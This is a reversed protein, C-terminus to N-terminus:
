LRVAAGGGPATADVTLAPGKSRRGSRWPGVPWSLLDDAGPPRLTLPSCRSGDYSTVSKCGLLTNVGQPPRGHAWCHGSYQIAMWPCDCDVGMFQYLRAMRGAPRWNETQGLKILPLVTEASFVVANFCPYNVPCSSATPPKTHSKTATSSLSATPLKSATMASHGPRGLLLFIGSVWLGVIVWLARGPKYGHAITAGLFQSKM